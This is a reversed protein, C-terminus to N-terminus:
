GEDVDNEPDFLRELDGEDITLDGGDQTGGTETTTAADKFHRCKQQNLLYEFHEGANNCDCFLAHSQFINNIWERELAKPTFQTPKYLKSM